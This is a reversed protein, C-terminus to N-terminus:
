QVAPRLAAALRDEGSPSERSGLAQVGLELCFSCTFVGGDKSRRCYKRHGSQVKARVREDGDHRRTDFILRGLHLADASTTVFM